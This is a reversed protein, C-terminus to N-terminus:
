IKVLSKELFFNIKIKKIKDPFGYNDYGCNLCKNNGNKFESINTKFNESKRQRVFKNNERSARIKLM